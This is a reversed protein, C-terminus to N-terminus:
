NISLESYVVHVPDGTTDLGIAMPVIAISINPPAPCLSGAAAAKSHDGSGRPLALGLFTSM